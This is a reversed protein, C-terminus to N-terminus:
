QEKSIKNKIEKYFNNILYSYGHGNFSKLYEKRSIDLSIVIKDEFGLEILKIIKQIRKEDKLYSQKGITDIGINFGLKLIKLIEDINEILDVHGIITKKTNVSIKKLFLAQDYGLKGLNVHTYIPVGIKKQVNVAAQFVKKEFSHIKDSSTAIEGIIGAKLNTDKFGITIHKYFENELESITMKNNLEYDNLYYGTSTVIPINLEESIECIKRKNSNMSQNSLDVILGLNQELAFSLEKKILKKDKILSTNDKRIHTLDFNLHEHSLIFKGKVNEKQIKKNILQIM